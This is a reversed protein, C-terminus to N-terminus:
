DEKIIRLLILILDAAGVMVILAGAQQVSM